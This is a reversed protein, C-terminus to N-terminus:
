WTQHYRSIFKFTDTLKIVHAHTMLSIIWPSACRAQPAAPRGSAPAAHGSRGPRGTEPQHGDPEESPRHIRQPGGPSPFSLREEAAGWSHRLAGVRAPGSRSFEQWLNLDLESGKYLCEALLQM